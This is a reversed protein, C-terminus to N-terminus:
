QKAPKALDALSNGAAIIVSTGGKHKDLNAAYHSDGAVELQMSKGAKTSALEAALREVETKHQIKLADTETKATAIQTHLEAIRADKAENATQMDAFQAQLDTLATKNQESETKLTDLQSQLNAVAAIKAADIQQALPTQGDLAAHVDSETASEKDLGLFAIAGEMIQQYLKSVSANFKM